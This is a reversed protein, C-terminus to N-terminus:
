QIWPNGQIGVVVVVVVVVLVLELSNVGKGHVTQGHDSTLGNM